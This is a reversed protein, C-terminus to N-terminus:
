WSEEPPLVDEQWKHSTKMREVQARVEETLKALGDWNELTAQVEKMRSGIAQLCLDSLSPVPKPRLHLGEFKMGNWFPHEKVENIDAAGLRADPDKVVMKEVLDRGEAPMGPPMVLDMDMIRNYILYESAAHFPPCGCFVQFFTCGLSWIDSREDSCRNEIVEAPMFQPTGVYEEFVKHRSANGAGKIHPNELDKATGFDILKVVGLEKLMINEAKIDRHVINAQRLYEVANVVQALYHRATPAPCGVTKVIEWLEGGLCEEMVVYICTNDAFWTLMKIINPHNVRLLCHKEMFLDATKKLRECRYRDVIKLACSRGTPKEVASYVSTYCGRGLLTGVEYDADRRKALPPLPYSM